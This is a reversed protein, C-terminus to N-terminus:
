EISASFAFAQDLEHESGWLGSSMLVIYM